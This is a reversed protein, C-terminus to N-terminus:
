NLLNNLVTQDFKLPAAADALDKQLTGITDLMAGAGTSHASVGSLARVTDTNSAQMGESGFLLTALANVMNLHDTVLSSPVPIALLGALMKKENSVIPTLASLVKPDNSSLYQNMIESSSKPVPYSQLVRAVAASYAALASASNQTSVHLDSFVYTKPPTVILNSTVIDGTTQNIVDPNNLLNAQKLQVYKTFLDRGLKDTETLQPPTNASAGKKTKQSSGGTGAGSFQERWDKFEPSDIVSSTATPLAALAAVQDHAANGDYSQSKVYYETGIVASLSVVFVIVTQMRPYSIAM